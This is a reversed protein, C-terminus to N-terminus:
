RILGGLRSGLFGNVSVSVGAGLHFYAPEAARGGSEPQFNGLGSPPLTIM